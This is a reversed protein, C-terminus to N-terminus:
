FQYGLGFTGLTSIQTFTSSSVNSNPTYANYFVQQVEFKVFLNKDLKHKSGFGYGLGSINKTYTTSNLAISSKASHYSIKVFGLTNESIAYGPEFNVSYHNKIEYTGTSNSAATANRLDYTLGTAVTFSSSLAFTYSGNLNLPYSHAGLSVNTSNQRLQNAEYGTNFGVSAGSFNESQAFASASFIIGAVVVIKKFM